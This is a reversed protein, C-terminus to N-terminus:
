TVSLGQFFFEACVMLIRKMLKMVTLIKHNRHCCRYHKDDPDGPQGSANQHVVEYFLYIPNSWKV